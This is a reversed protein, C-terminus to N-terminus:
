VCISSNQNSFLFLYICDLCSEAPSCYHSAEANTYDAGIFWKVVGDEYPYLYRNKQKNQWVLGNPNSITKYYTWTGKLYNDDANHLCLDNYNPIFVTPALSPQKSPTASPNDTPAPSPAKSPPSSPAKSPTSTPATPAATVPAPTTETPSPTPSCTDATIDFETDEVWGAISDYEWGDCGVNLIAYNDGDIHVYM